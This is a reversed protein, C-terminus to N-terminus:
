QRPMQRRPLLGQCRLWPSYCCESQPRQLYCTYDTCGTRPLYDMCGTYGKRPSYDMYGTCGTYGKRPLYGMCGTYGKRLLYDTCGKCDRYDRCDTRRM